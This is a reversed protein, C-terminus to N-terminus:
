LIVTSESLYFCVSTYPNPIYAVSLTCGFSQTSNSM